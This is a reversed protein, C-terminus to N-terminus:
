GSVLQHSKVSKEDFAVIVGHLTAETYESGPNLCITRGIKFVGRSEHIHGHLGLLPQHKEIAERVARSGAGTKMVQGGKVVPKPPTVSTDLLPAEDIGTNIPPVHINFICNDMRRVKSAMDGIRKELDEESVDRPCNWPTKNGYGTSIMEHNPDIELVEGEADMVFDSSKLVPEIEFRDDNGGTIYVKVGTGKLRDEALKLWRRIQEIMLETFIKDSKEKNAMLEDAEAENTVYPYYGNIQISSIMQNLESESKAVHDADLFHASHSGDPQKVIPIIVKGTIDGGLILTNVKYFKAANLFKSYCKESGHLDTAFYLKNIAM